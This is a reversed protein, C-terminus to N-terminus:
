TLIRVGLGPGPFPHRFVVERSLGLELGIKRVEDKFLERLPEILDLKVFEPLGGVNHHSKIVHAKGNKNGASVDSPHIECYVGVERVRRAILQTYQSGFDLILIREQHIDTSSM